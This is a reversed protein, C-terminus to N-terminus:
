RTCLMSSAELRGTSPSYRAFAVQGNSDIAATTLEDNGRALPVLGSVALPQSDYELSRDVFAFATEIPSTASTRRGYIALGSPLPDIGSFIAVDFPGEDNNVQAMAPPLFYPQPVIPRIVSPMAMTPVHRLEATFAFSRRHSSAVGVLAGNVNALSCRQIEPDGTDYEVPAYLRRNASDYYDVIIKGDALRLLPPPTFHSVSHADSIQRTRLNVPLYRIPFQGGGFGRFRKEIM